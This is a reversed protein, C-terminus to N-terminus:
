QQLFILKNQMVGHYLYPREYSSASKVLITWEISGSQSTVNKRTESIENLGVPIVLQGLKEYPEVLYYIM